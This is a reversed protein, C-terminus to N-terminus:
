PPPPGVTNRVIFPQTDWESLLPRDLVKRFTAFKGDLSVYEYEEQERLFLYLQEVSYLQVDDIFLTGGMPLIMNIYCFDVFVAPWNHCGDILGIDFREGLAFLRPLALESQECVFQLRDTSIEREHAEALMREHLGADPAISTLAKPELCLFLLTSAGAGTEVIRPAEHRSVEAIIREGIQKDLGGVEPGRGFDHLKPLDDLLARATAARRDLAPETRV